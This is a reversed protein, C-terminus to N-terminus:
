GLLPQAPCFKQVVVLLFQGSYGYPLVEAVIVVEDKAAPVHYGCCASGRSVAGVAARDAAKLQEHVDHRWFFSSFLLATLFILLAVSLVSAADLRSRWKKLVFRRRRCSGAAQPSKAQVSPFGSVPEEEEKEDGVHLSGRRRIMLVSIRLSGDLPAGTEHPFQQPFSGRQDFGVRAFHLSAFHLSAFHLSTFHLSVFHLGSGCHFSAIQVM